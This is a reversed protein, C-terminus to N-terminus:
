FDESTNSPAGNLDLHGLLVLGVVTVLVLATWDDTPKLELNGQSGWSTNPEAGKLEDRVGVDPTDELVTDGEMSSIMYMAVGSSRLELAVGLMVGSTVGREEM